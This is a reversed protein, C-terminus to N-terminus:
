ITSSTTTTAENSAKKIYSNALKQAAGSLEGVIKDVALYQKFVCIKLLFIGEQNKTALSMNALLTCGNKRMSSLNSKIAELSIQSMRSWANTESFDKSSTADGAGSPKAAEKAVKAPIPILYGFFIGKIEDNEAQTIGECFPDILSIAPL